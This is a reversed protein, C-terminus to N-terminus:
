RRPPQYVHSGTYCRTPFRQRRGRGRPETPPDDESPPTSDSSLHEEEQNSPGEENGREIDDVGFDSMSLLQEDTLDFNSIHQPVPITSLPVNSEFPPRYVNEFSPNYTPQQFQSSPFDYNPQSSSPTFTHQQSHSHSHTYDFNPQPIPSYQYTPRNTTQFPQHPPFLNLPQQSSTAYFSNHQTTQTHHYTQQQFSSTQPQFPSIHQQFPSQMTQPIHQHM